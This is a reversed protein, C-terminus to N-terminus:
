VVDMIPMDRGSNWNPMNLADYSIGHIPVEDGAEDDRADGWGARL